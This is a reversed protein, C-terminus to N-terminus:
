VPGPSQPSYQYGGPCHSTISETAGGGSLRADSQCISFRYAASGPFASLYPDAQTPSHFSASADNIWGATGGEMNLEFAPFIDM